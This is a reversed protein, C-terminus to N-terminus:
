RALHRSGAPSADPKGGTREALEVAIALRVIDSPAIIGILQEAEMVLARSQGHREMQRLVEDATEGADVVPVDPLPKAVAVVATNPWEDAPLSRISTMDVLGIVKDGEMVPYASHRGSAVADDVFQSVLRSGAVTMPRSTMVDRSTFRRLSSETRSGRLEAQSAERLFWGIMMLWVGSVLAVLVAEIAGIWVMVRGITGGLRAAKATAEENSLGRRWLWAQYIRGGDLPFAPLLNFLALVINITGFWVLVARALGPTLFGAVLGIFGCVMSVLPGARAIRIAADPTAPSRELQAVGGLAWVTISRVEVDHRLAVLAHGLEHAVLAILFGVTAGIAAVWYATESRGEVMDPLLQTALTWSILGGIIAVSWHARIEIGRVSVIPM